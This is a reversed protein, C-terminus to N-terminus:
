CTTHVRTKSLTKSKIDGSLISPSESFDCTPNERNKERVRLLKPRLSKGFFETYCLLLHKTARIGTQTSARDSALCMQSNICKVQSTSINTQTHTHIHRHACVSTPCHQLMLRVYLSVPHLALVWEPGPAFIQLTSWIHSVFLLCLLKKVPQYSLPLPLPAFLPSTSTFM